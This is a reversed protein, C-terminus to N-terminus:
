TDDPTITAIVLPSRYYSWTPTVSLPDTAQLGHISQHIHIKQKHAYKPQYSSVATLISPQSLSSPSLCILDATTTM